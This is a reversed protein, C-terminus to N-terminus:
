KKDNAHAEASVGRERARRRRERSGCLKWHLAGLLAVLDLHERQHQQDATEFFARALLILRLFDAAEAMEVNPLLRNDHACDRGHAFVIIDDGRIAIVRM